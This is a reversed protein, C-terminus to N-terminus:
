KTNPTTKAMGDLMGRAERAQPTDPCEAVIKEFYSRATDFRGARLYNLGLSLWEQAQDEARAQRIRVMLDADQELRLRAAEAKKGVDTGEGSKAVFAYIEYAQVLCDLRRERRETETLSRDTVGASSVGDPLPPEAHLDPMEEGGTSVPTSAGSSAGVPTTPDTPPDADGATEAAPEAPPPNSAAAEPKGALAAAEAELAEARALQEALREERLRARFRPDQELQRLQAGAQIAPPLGLYTRTIRKLELLGAEPEDGALFERAVALERLGEQTIVALEDAAKQPYPSDIRLRRGIEYARLLYKVAEAQNGAARAEMGQKYAEEAREKWKEHTVAPDEEITGISVGPRVGHPVIVRGGVGPLRIGGEAFVLAPGVLLVAAMMALSRM